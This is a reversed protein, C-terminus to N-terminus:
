HAAPLEFKIAALAASDTALPATGAPLGNLKLIYAVTAAYQERTLTGPNGDPMTTRIQEFLAFLPQGVWKTKFDAGTVDKTEHCESCVKTYVAQGEAAQEETYVKLTDRVGFEVRGSPEQARMGTGALTSAGVMSALLAIPFFRHRSMAKSRTDMRMRQCAQEPRTAPPLCGTPHSRSGRMM